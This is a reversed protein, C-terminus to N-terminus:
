STFPVAMSHSPLSVNLATTSPVSEVPVFKTVSPGSLTDMIRRSGGPESELVVYLVPVSTVDTCVYLLVVMSVAPTCDSM